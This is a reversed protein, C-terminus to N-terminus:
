FYFNDSTNAPFEVNVKYYIVGDTPVLYGVSKTEAIFNEVSKRAKKDLKTVEKAKELVDRPKQDLPQWANYVETTTGTQTQIESCTTTAVNNKKKTSTAIVDVCETRTEYTPVDQTIETLVAIDSIKQKSDRFYGMLEVEQDKSSHNEVAVYVTAHSLGDTYTSKDTYIILDEGSNDDTWTFEITQGNVTIPEPFGTAPNIAGIYLTALVTGAIGLATIYTAITKNKMDKDISKM